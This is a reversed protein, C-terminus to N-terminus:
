RETAAAEPGAGVEAAGAAEKAAEAAAAETFFRHGGFQNRLAAVIRAAFREDDRSAFRAYLSAAIAPTPVARRVGEEVTWRGEGSDEVYGRVGSFADADALALEALELLWSRVVSGKNWLSAVQHLDLSFEDASELLAFGEAYAQLMGYEIGNHVMKTFHGAGSPGVHAFGGEPALDAFVPQLRAVADDDGGVMLCYGAHLGWVGGSVGADVFAIGKERLRAAHALADSYRSNGGDVITDGPGLLGALEEITDRTAQGAPVMVWVPRPADLAGALEGLSGVGIAGQSRAAAVTDPNRDFAVVEHGHRLLRETMNGGMRGLGVMGIRM